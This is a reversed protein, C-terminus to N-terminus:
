EKTDRHVLDWEMRAPRKGIGAFFVGAIAWPDSATFRDPLRLFKRDGVLVEEVVELGNGPSFSAGTESLNLRLARTRFKCLFICFDLINDFSRPEPHTAEKLIKALSPPVCM